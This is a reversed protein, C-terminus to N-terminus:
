AFQSDKQCYAFVAADKDICAVMIRHIVPGIPSLVMNVQIQFREGLDVYGNRASWKRQSATWRHATGNGRHAVCVLMFVPLMGM